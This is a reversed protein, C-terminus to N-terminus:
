FTVLVQIFHKVHMHQRTLTLITTNLIHKESTVSNEISHFRATFGLSPGTEESYTTQVTNTRHTSPASSHQQKNNFFCQQLQHFKIM